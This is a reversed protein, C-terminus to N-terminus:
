LYQMRICVLISQQSNLECDKKNGRNEITAIKVKNNLITDFVDIRQFLCAYFTEEVKTNFLLRGEMSTYYNGIIDNIM